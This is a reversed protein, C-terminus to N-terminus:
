DTVAVVLTASKPPPGPSSCLALSGDDAFSLEAAPTWGAFGRPEASLGGLFSMMLLKPALNEGYIALGYGDGLSEECGDTPPKSARGFVYLVDGPAGGIPSDLPVPVHSKLRFQQVPPGDSTLKDPADWPHPKTGRAYYLVEGGSVVAVHVRNGAAFACKSFWENDDLDVDDTNEVILCAAFSCDERCLPVAKDYPSATPDCAEGDDIVGNGCSPDIEWRCAPSCGDGAEGNMDDCEEEGAVVGDGCSALVEFQCDGDCGDDDQRNGDDCAEVGALVHGDGCRALTCDELCVDDNLFNGDDCQEVGAYLHSDGCFAHLCQETCADGGAVNGDDCQEEGLPQGDGCNPAPAPLMCMATCYTEDADGDDCVEDRQVVSDGCVAPPIMMDDESALVFAPNDV